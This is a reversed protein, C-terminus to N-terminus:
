IICSLVPFGGYICLRERCGEHIINLRKNKLWSLSMQDVYAQFPRGTLFKDFRNITWVLASLEGEPAGM